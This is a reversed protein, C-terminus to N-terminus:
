VSIIKLPVNKGHNSMSQQRYIEIASQKLLQDANWHHCLEEIVYTFYGLDIAEYASALVCDNIDYGIFHAEEIQHDQLFLLLDRGAAGKFCSRTNKEVFIRPPNKSSLASVIESATPGAEERTKLFNEQKFFMSTEDAYYNAEVYADYAYENILNVMSPILTQAEACLTQTQADVIFLAKRRSSVPMAIKM